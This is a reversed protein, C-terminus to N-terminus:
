KKDVLRASLEYLAQQDKVTLNHLNAVTKDILPNEPPAVPTSFSFLEPYSVGLATVIKDLTALTCNREAREIKALHAPHLGAKLALDEITYGKAQRYKRLRSGVQEIIPYYNM